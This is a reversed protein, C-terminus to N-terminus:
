KNSLDLFEQFREKYRDAINDRPYFTNQVGCMSTVAQQTDKFYGLSKAALIAVGVSSAEINIAKEVPLNYVDAKLQLWTNSKAGSGGVRMAKFPKGHANVLLEFHQKLVFTQCEVVAQFLDKLSTDQRMGSFCGNGNFINGTNYVMGNGDFNMQAFLRTLADKDQASWLMKAYWDIIHGIADGCMVSFNQEFPAILSGPLFHKRFYGMLDWTGAMDALLGNGYPVVGLGLQACVCDHGGVVVPIEYPLEVSGFRTIGGIVEECERIDTDMFDPTIGIADIIDNLWKRTEVDLLQSTIALSYDSIPGLGMKALIYQEVSFFHRTKAFVEPLKKKFWLIKAPNSESNLGGRIIKDRTELPIIQELYAAEEHARSDFGVVLDYVPDGDKDVPILNAGFWSFVLARFEIDKASSLVRGLAIEIADWIDLPKIQTLNHCPHQWEYGKAESAYIAGDEIAILNVHAKSTGVDIVIIAEKHQM